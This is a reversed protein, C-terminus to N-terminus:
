MLYDRLHMILVLGHFHIIREIEYSNLLKINNKVRIQKLMQNLM